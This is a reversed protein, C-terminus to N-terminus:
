RSSPRTARSSRWRRRTSARRAPLRRRARDRRWGPRLADRRGAARADRAGHLRRRPPGCRDLSLDFWDQLLKPLFVAMAVFGGFTVFYLLALRWLRWGSRLVETYRVAPGRPPEVAYRHFVFATAVLLAAAVIGLAERGLCTSSRPRVSPLSPPASTAWGTSASRSARGSGGTGGQSSPFAWRSRRGPSGSSSGSSSSPRM